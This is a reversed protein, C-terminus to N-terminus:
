LKMIYALAYYPVNETISPISHQHDAVSSIPHTHYNSGGNAYIAIGTGAYSLYIGAGSNTTNRTIGTTQVYGGVAAGAQGTLPATYQHTHGNDNVGHTHTPDYVSHAHSPMQDVTLYTAGTAGGHSHAGALGTLLATPTNKAGVAKNGAGIIFRDRLDPTGNTGDCLAWRALPGVGIDTLSGSWMCIMGAPFDTAGGTIAENVAEDFDTIQSATHTHVTPARTSIQTDTYAKAELLNEADADQLAVIDSLLIAEAPDVDSTVGAWITRSQIDVLMEGPSITGPLPPATSFPGAIKMLTGELLRTRVPINM